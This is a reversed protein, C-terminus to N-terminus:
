CDNPTCVSNSKKKAHAAEYSSALLFSSLLWYVDSKALSSSGGWFRLLVGAVLHSGVSSVHLLKHDSSLAPVKGGSTGVSKGWPSVAYYCHRNKWNSAMSDLFRYNYRHQQLAISRLVESWSVSSPFLRVEPSLHSYCCEKTSRIKLNWPTKNTHVTNDIHSLLFLIFSQTNGTTCACWCASM